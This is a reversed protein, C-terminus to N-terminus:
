RPVIDPAADHAALFDPISRPERHAGKLWDVQWETVREKKDWEFHGPTPENVSERQRILAIPDEAGSANSSYKAATEYRAFAAFYDADGALPPAGHEPHMWVRYELVEDYFYGAGSKVAGAYTGVRAPDVAVPYGTSGRISRDVHAASFPAASKCAVGSLTALSSIAVATRATM